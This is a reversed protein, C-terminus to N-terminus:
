YGFTQAGAELGALLGDVRYNGIIAGNKFLVGDGSQAGVIFAAKHISPFVLIAQAKAGLAKAGPSGAYLAKLAAQADEDVVQAPAAYAPRLGALAVTTVVLMLVLAEIHLRHRM